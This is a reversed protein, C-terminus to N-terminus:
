KELFTVQIYKRLSGNLQINHITYGIHGNGDDDFIPIDNMYRSTKIFGYFSNINTKLENLSCTNESTCFKHFGDTVAFVSLLTHIYRQDESLSRTTNADLVSKFNNGCIKAENNEVFTKEFSTLMDCKNYDEFYRPIWRNEDNNFPRLNNLYKIYHDNSYAQAAINFVISGVSAQSLLNLNSGWGESSIFILPDRNTSFKDVMVDLIQQVVSDIAFLLVVIVQQTYLKKIVDKEVYEDKMNQTVSIPDEVCINRSVAEQQLRLKGGQGYADDIYVLGVHSVGLELLVSVMGQVQLTDSPVTRLFFPYRNRNDLDPSSASYSIIPLRITTALDAVVLTVSSSLAGVIAIVNDFNIVRNPDTPDTITRRKSFLETLYHSTNLGNYCDDIAIAGFNVGTQNRRVSVSQIFSSVTIIDNTGRRIHGCSYPSAGYQSLSFLGLILVDGHLYSYRLDLQEQCEMCYLKCASSPLVPVNPVSM